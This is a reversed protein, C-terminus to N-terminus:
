GYMVGWAVWARFPKVFRGQGDRKGHESFFFTLKGGSCSGLAGRFAHRCQDGGFCGQKLEWYGPIETREVEDVSKVGYRWGFDSLVFSVLKELSSPDVCSM